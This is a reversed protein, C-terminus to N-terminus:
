VGNMGPMAHAISGNSQGPRPRRCNIAGVAVLRALSRLRNRERWGILIVLLSVAFITSPEPVVTLAAFAEM